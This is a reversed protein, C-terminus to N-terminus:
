KGCPVDINEAAREVLGWKNDRGRYKQGTEEARGSRTLDHGRLRDMALEALGLANWSVPAAFARVQSTNSCGAALLREEELSRLGPLLVRSVGGRRGRPSIPGPALREQCASIVMIIQDGLCENDKYKAGVQWDWGTEHNNELM